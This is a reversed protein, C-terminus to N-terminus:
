DGVDAVRVDAAGSTAVAVAEATRPEGPGAEPTHARPTRPVLRRVIWRRAPTEVGTYLAWALCAAVIAIVFAVVPGTAGAGYAIRIVLEHVLYFAYSASGAAVMGRRALVWRSGREDATGCAVLFLVFPLELVVCAYDPAGALSAAVVGLATVAGLAIRPLRPRWGDVFALGAVIGLAFEPARAPPFHFLYFAAGPVTRSVAMPLALAALVVAMRVLPSLRRLGALLFPFALYFAAEVSLSWAVGNIGFAVDDSPFWAQVLLVNPLAVQWTVPGTATVSVVVLGALFTVLHDPYIRAFRRVYFGRLPGPRATWTLIFGSLVYFFGVGIRGAGVGPVHVIGWTTDLHYLLVLAAAFARVSTLSPLNRDPSPTAEAHM